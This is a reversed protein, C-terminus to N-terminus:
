ADEPFGAVVFKKEVTYAVYTYMADFILKDNKHLSMKSLGNCLPRSLHDFSWIMAKQNCSSGYCRKLPLLSRLCFVYAVELVM